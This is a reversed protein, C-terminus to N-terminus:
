DAAISHISDGEILDAGGHRAGNGKGNATDRPKVRPRMRAEGLEESTAEDLADILVDFVERQVEESEFANVVAAMSPLNTLLKKYRANSM